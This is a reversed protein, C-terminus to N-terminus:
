RLKSAYDSEYFSHLSVIIRYNHLLLHQNMERPAFDNTYPMLSLCASSFDSFLEETSITSFYNHLYPLLIYYIRPGNSPMSSASNFSLPSNNNCDQLSYILQRNCFSHKLLHLIRLQLLWKNKIKTQISTGSLQSDINISTDKGLLLKVTNWTIM